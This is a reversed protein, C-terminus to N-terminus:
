AVRGDVGPEEPDLPVGELTEAEHRAAILHLHWAEPLVELKERGEPHTGRSTPPNSAPATAAAPVSSTDARGSM